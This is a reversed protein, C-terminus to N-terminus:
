KELLILLLFLTSVWKKDSIFYFILRDTSFSYWTCYKHSIGYSTPQKMWTTAVTQVLIMEMKLTPILTTMKRLSITHEETFKLLILLLYQLIYRPSSGKFMLKYIGFNPLNYFVIGPWFLRTIEISLVNVKVCRGTSKKRLVVMGNDWYGVLQSFMYPHGNCTVLMCRM